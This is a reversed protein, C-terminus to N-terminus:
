LRNTTRSRRRASNRLTSLLPRAYTTSPQTTRTGQGVVVGKLGLPYAVYGDRHKEVIIKVNMPTIRSRGGPGAEAAMIMLSVPGDWKTVNCGRGCLQRDEGPKCRWAASLTDSGIPQVGIGVHRYEVHDPAESETAVQVAHPPLRNRSRREAHGPRHRGPGPMKSCSIRPLATPLRSARRM